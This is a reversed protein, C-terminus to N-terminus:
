VSGGHDVFSPDVSTKQQYVRHARAVGFSAPAPPQRRTRGFVAVRTVEWVDSVFQRLWRVARRLM